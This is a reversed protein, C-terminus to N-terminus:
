VHICTCGAVREMVTRVFWTQFNSIASNLTGFVPAKVTSTKMLFKWMSGVSIDRKCLAGIAPDFGVHPTLGAKEGEPYVCIVQGVQLNSGGKTSRWIQLTRGRKQKPHLCLAPDAGAIYPVKRCSDLIFIFIFNYLMCTHIYTWILFNCTFSYHFLKSEKCVNGFCACNTCSCEIWVICVQIKHFHLQSFDAHEFQKILKIITVTFVYM